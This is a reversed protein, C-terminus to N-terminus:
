RTVPRTHPQNSRFVFRLRVSSEVAFSSQRDIPVSLVIMVTVMTEGNGVWLIAGRMM